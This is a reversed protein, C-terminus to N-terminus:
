PTTAATGPMSQQPPAAFSIRVVTGLGQATGVGIVCTLHGASGCYGDGVIGSAVHYHVSFTGNRAVRIPIAHTIDCHSTDTEPDLHGKVAATCQTAFWTQATGHYSKVLGKGSITVSKGNVLNSAPNVKVSISAAGAAGAAFALTMVTVAGAALAADRMRKM